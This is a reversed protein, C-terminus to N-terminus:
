PRESDTPVEQCNEIGKIQLFVRRNDVSDTPIGEIPDSEGAALITMQPEPVGSKNLLAVVTKARRYSLLLNQRELGVSDAHGKVSVKAQPHDNLWKRLRELHLQIDGTIVPYIGGQRFPITIAPPCDVLKSPLPTSAPTTQEDAPSDQLDSPRAPVDAPVSPPPFPESQISQDGKAVAAGELTEVPVATPKTPLNAAPQTASVSSQEQILNGQSRQEQLRPQENMWLWATTAALLVGILTFGMPLWTPTDEGTVRYQEPTDPQERDSM